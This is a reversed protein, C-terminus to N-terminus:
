WIRKNLIIVDYNYKATKYKRIDYDENKMIKM